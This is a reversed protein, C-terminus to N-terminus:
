DFRSNFESWQDTTGLLTLKANEPLVTTPSPNNIKEGNAELSLVILGTLAGIGSEALTVGALSGPLRVTFFEVGGGILVPDRGLILSLITEAGLNAYSLVFDAGARHMAERNREHTTRSVIRVDPNLRRCYVALYINIADSNTSLIVLSSENIGARTITNIDAADGITVQESILELKKRLAETRDVIHVRVGSRHLARAAARGVKGGGIVLVPGAPKERDASGLLDELKKVQDATGICVPVSLEELVQEPEAPRLVGREWVGVINVGSRERIGSDKIKVSELPTDNVTFEVVSLDDLNRVFHVRKGDANIRNALNEGLMRKFPLVRTAGALELIDISDSNEAVAFVPIDPAIERVTITINTNTADDANAVIAHATEVRLQRYATTSDVENNVVSIGDNFLQLAADPDPEIVFYPIDRHRLRKVLNAAITDYRCIVVHGAVDPPAERPCRVRLTAEIWPAYFFRIFAFPLMILLLVIGSLLVLLTFARGIGSTFTIDGFGLTSMVTLTWYLGTIWSFERGEAYRMIVHFLVTYAAIVAFLFGVYKLLAALNSRLQGQRLFYDIQSSLFKM